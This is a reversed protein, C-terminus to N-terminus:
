DEKVDALIARAKRVMDVLVPRFEKAKAIPEPYRLDFVEERGKPGIGKLTVKDQDFAMMESDEVWDANALAQLMTVMDHRHDDNMHDIAMKSFKEPFADKSM